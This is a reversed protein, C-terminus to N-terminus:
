RRGFAKTLFYFSVVSIFVWTVHEGPYPTVGLKLVTDWVVIKFVYILVCKGLLERTSWWKDYQAASIALDRRLELEKIREDAAVKEKDTAARAKALRAEIIQSTIREVAPLIGLLQGIWAFM